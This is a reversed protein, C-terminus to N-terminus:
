KIRFTRTGHKRVLALALLLYIPVAVLVISTFIDAPARVILCVGSIASIIMNIVHYMPNKMNFETSYPQFIYYMFLHHVSFFVSLLLISGWLMLLEITWWSHGAVLLIATLGAALAIAIILNLGIIKILRNRFHEFASARYFSYRLLSLDCNYFMARSIKEGISLFYMVAFLIPFITGLATTMLNRQEPVILAIALGVATLAGIIAIRTFIPKRILSRHRSFFLSNLYNYGQRSSFMQQKENIEYDSAKSEVSTKQAESMMRGIDLLPDDKKTAADVIARYDSYRVLKVTAFIGVAIFLIYAPVSLIFTATIPQWDLLLPLYAAAFGIGITMWVIVTNKILIAGTRAFLKLHLYETVIRWLTLSLTLIIAEVISVELMSTFVIMPPLLYIFFTIYRYGLTALMYTKSSLRMLKIAVYKERKPELITANGVGAIIFSLLFFIHIFHQLQDAASLTKGLIIVPLFLILGVYAFRLLFSWLVSVIFAIVAVIKKMDLNSYVRDSVHKGVLPLKQMYYLFLNALTSTRIAFLTKLTTLM